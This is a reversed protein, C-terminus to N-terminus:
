VHIRWRSLVKSTEAGLKLSQQDCLNTLVDVDARLAPVPVGLAVLGTAAHTRASNPGFRHILLDTSTATVCTTGNGASDALFAREHKHADLFLEDFADATAFPLDPLVVAAPGAHRGNRLEEVGIDVAAALGSEADAVVECRTRVSRHITMDKSVVVIRDVFPSRELASITDLFFALALQPRLPHSDPLLRSKGTELSRIPVVVGHRNSTTRIM